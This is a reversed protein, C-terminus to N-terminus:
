PQEMVVFLYEGERAVGGSSFSDLVFYYTGPDLDVVLERHDRAICDAGSTGSLLHVDIDAGDGDVDDVVLARVRRKEAVEFRYYHERGSEDQAAACGDYVDIADNTSERTDRVDSFPLSDVVVPDAVTGTGAISRVAVDPAAESDVVVRRARDLTQITLLNRINYGATLGDPTFV